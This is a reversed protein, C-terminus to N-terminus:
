RTRRRARRGASREKQKPRESPSHCDMPNRTVLGWGRTALAFTGALIPYIRRRTWPSYWDRMGRLLKRWRARPQDGPRPADQARSPPIRTRVAREGPHAGLDVDDNPTLEFGMTATGGMYSTATSTFRTEANTAALRLRAVDEITSPVDEALLREARGDRVGLERSRGPRPRHVAPHSKCSSRGVDPRVAM